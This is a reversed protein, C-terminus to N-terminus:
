LKPRHVRAAPRTSGGIKAPVGVVGFGAVGFGGGFGGSGDVAGGSGGGSGRPGEALGVSGGGAGGADPESCSDPGLAWLELAWLELSKRGLICIRGSRTVAVLARPGVAVTSCTKPSRAPNARRIMAVPAM